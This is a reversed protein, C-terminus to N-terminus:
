LTLMALLACDASADRALLMAAPSCPASPTRRRSKRLTAATLKAPTPATAASAGSITWIDGDASTSAMDVVSTSIEFTTGPCPMLTLQRLCGTNTRLRVGLSIASALAVGSDSSRSGCVSASRVLGPLALQSIVSPTQVWKPQTGSPM